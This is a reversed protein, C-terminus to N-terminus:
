RRTAAGTLPAGDAAYRARQAPLQQPEPKNPQAAPATPNDAPVPNLGGGGTLAPAPGSVQSGQVYNATGGPMPGQDRLQQLESELGLIQNGLPQSM